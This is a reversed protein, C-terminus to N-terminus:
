PPFQRGLNDKNEPSFQDNRNSCNYESPFPWFCCKLFYEANLSDIVAPVGAVIPGGFLAAGRSLAALSKEGLMSRPNGGRDYRFAERAGQEFEQFGGPGYLSAHGHGM